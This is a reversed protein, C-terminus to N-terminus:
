EPVDKIGSIQEQPYKGTERLVRDVVETVSNLNEENESKMFSLKAEERNLRFRLGEELQVYGMTIEGGRENLEKEVRGDERADRRNGTEDEKSTFSITDLTSDPQDDVRVKLNYYLEVLENFKEQFEPGMEPRQKVVDRYKGLARCVEDRIQEVMKVDSGRITVLDSNERIVVVVRKTILLPMKKGTVPNESGANENYGIALYLRSSFRESEALFPEQPVGEVDTEKPLRSDVESEIEELDFNSIGTIIFYNMTQRGAYKHQRVLEAFQDTDLLEAVKLFFSDDKTPVRVGINKLFREVAAKPLPLSELVELREDVTEYETPLSKSMVWVWVSALEAVTRDDDM